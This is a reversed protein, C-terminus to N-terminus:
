WWPANGPATPLFTTHPHPPTMSRTGTPDTRAGFRGALAAFVVAFSSRRLGANLM